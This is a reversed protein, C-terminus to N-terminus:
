VSSSILNQLNKKAMHSSGICIPIIILAMVLAVGLIPLTALIPVHGSIYLIIPLVTAGIAGILLVMGLFIGQWTVFRAKPFETFSPYRVGMMFGIFVAELVVGFSGVIITIMAEWTPHLLLQICTLLGILAIFPPFLATAVKAKHIENEQLPLSLINIFASGEQGISTIALYFALMLIGSLPGTFLALNELLTAATGWTSYSTSIIPMISIAVPVAIWGIMEKRRTLSRFDKRILATEALTFGIRGLIGRKLAFPRSPALQIPISTSDWYKARLKVSIWLLGGTLGVNLGTYILTSTTDAALYSMLALSAWLSPIFWANEIGSVFYQLIRLLINVNFALMVIVIMVIGALMRAAIMARGSRKYFMTSMRNILVRLIEAIFTGAFMGLLGLGFSVLWLSVQNLSVAIGFTAGFAVALLPALFYMLTLTSALVYATPTIPLWNIMDPSGMSTAQLEFLIGFMIAALMMFSPIFISFYSFFTTVPITKLFGGAFQHALLAAAPFIAGAFFINVRPSKAAGTPISGKVRKERVSALAMIKALHLIVRGNLVEM